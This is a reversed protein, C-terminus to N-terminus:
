GTQERVRPDLVAYAIDTLLNCLIILTGYVVVTGMVLTYDRNLASEVFERGLGPISFIREVVLSGTTVSAVAPGLYSVVPLIGGRFAHRLLVTPESLGKARATRVFDEGLVELMGARTLRAFRAAFPLSLALAPLILHGVTGTGSVPLLGLKRAFFAQLLPGMVFVPLSIGLVCAGMAAYDLWSRARLASVFGAGVGVVCAVVLALSGLMVSVPLHDVIIRRV